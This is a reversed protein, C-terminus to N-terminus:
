CKKQFDPKKDVGQKPSGVSPHGGPSQAKFRKAWMETFCAGWGGLFSMFNLPGGKEAMSEFEIGNKQKQHRM